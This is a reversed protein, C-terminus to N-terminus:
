TNDTVVECIEASFSRGQGYWCNTAPNFLWDGELEFAEINPNKPCIRLTGRFAKFGEVTIM